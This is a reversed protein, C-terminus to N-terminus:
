CLKSRPSKSWEGEEGGGEHGRKAGAVPEQLEDGEESEYGEDETDGDEGVVVEWPTGSNKINYRGKRIEAALKKCGLKFAKFTVNTSEKFEDLAGKEMFWSWIISRLRRARPDKFDAVLTRMPEDLRVFKLAAASLRTGDERCFVVGEDFLTLAWVFVSPRGREVLNGIRLRVGSSKTHAVYYQAVFILGRARPITEYDDALEKHVRAM